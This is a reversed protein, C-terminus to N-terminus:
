NHTTKAIVDRNEGSNTSILLDSNSLNILLNPKEEKEKNKMKIEDDERERM